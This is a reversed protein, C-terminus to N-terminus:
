KKYKKYMRAIKSYPSIIVQSVDVSTMEEANDKTMEKSTDVEDFKAFQLLWVIKEFMEKNIPIYSAEKLHDGKSYLSCYADGKVPNKCIKSMVKNEEIENKNFGVVFVMDPGLEIEDYQFNDLVYQEGFKYMINDLHNQIYTYKDSSGDCRYVMGSKIFKEELISQLDPYRINDFDIKTDSLTKYKIVMVPKDTLIGDAFQSGLKNIKKDSHKEVNSLPDLFVQYFTDKVYIKSGSIVGTPNIHKQIVSILSTPNHPNELKHLTLNDEDEILEEIDEKIRGEGRHIDIMARTHHVVAYVIPDDKLESEPEPKPQLEEKNSKVPTQNQTNQTNQTNSANLTTEQKTESM